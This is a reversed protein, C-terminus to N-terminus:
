QGKSNSINLMRIPVDGCKCEIKLLIEHLRKGVVETTSETKFENLGNHVSNQTALIKCHALISM